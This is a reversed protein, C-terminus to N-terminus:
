TVIELATQCVGLRQGKDSNNMLAFGGILPELLV